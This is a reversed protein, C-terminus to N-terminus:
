QSSFIQWNKLRYILVDHNYELLYLCATRIRSWQKLNELNKCHKTVPFQLERMLLRNRTEPHWQRGLVSPKRQFIFVRNVEALAELSFFFVAKNKRHCSCKSGHLGKPERLGVVGTMYCYSPLAYPSTETLGTKPLELQWVTAPQVTPRSQVLSSYAVAYDSFTVNM